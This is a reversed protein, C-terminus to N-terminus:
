GCRNLLVPQFGPLNIEQWEGSNLKVRTFVACKQTKRKPVSKVPMRQCAFNKGPITMLWAQKVTNTDDRPEPQRLKLDQEDRKGLAAVRGGHLRLREDDCRHVAGPTGESYDAGQLEGANNYAYSTTVSCPRFFNLHVSRCAMHKRDPFARQM